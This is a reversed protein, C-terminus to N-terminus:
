TKNCENSPHRGTLETNFTLTGKPQGASDRLLKRRSDAVIKKQNRTTQSVEGRWEETTLSDADPSNATVESGLLVDAHQGIAEEASWGYLREAAPNWFTIRRDLDCVLIADPALDILEAQERIRQDAQHLRRFRNLRLIGRIRVRLERRDIPKTVFDDAGSDIGRLRSERDELATM